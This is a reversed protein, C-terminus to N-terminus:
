IRFVEFRLYLSSVTKSQFFIPSYPPTRKDAFSSIPPLQQKFHCSFVKAPSLIKKEVVHESDEEDNESIFAKIIFQDNCPLSQTYFNYDNNSLNNAYFKNLANEKMTNQLLSHSVDNAFSSMISLILMLVTTGIYKFSKKMSLAFSYVAILV